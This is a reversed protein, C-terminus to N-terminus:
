VKDIIELVERAEKPRLNVFLSKNEQRALPLYHAILDRVYFAQSCGLSLLARQSACRSLLLASRKRSFSRVFGSERRPCVVRLLEIAMDAQECQNALFTLQSRFWQIHTSFHIGAAM